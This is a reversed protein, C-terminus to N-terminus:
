TEMKDAMSSMQFRHSIRKISTAGPLDLKNTGKRCNHHGRTGTTRQVNDGAQAEQCCMAPAVSSELTEVLSSDLAAVSIPCKM